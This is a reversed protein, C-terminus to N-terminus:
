ATELSEDTKITALQAIKFGLAHLATAHPANDAITGALLKNDTMDIGLSHVLFPLTDMNDIMYSNTM